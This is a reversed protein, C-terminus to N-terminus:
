TPLHYGLRSTAVVSYRAGDPSLRSEFLTVHDVRCRGAAEAREHALADKFGPGPPAKVRGLTLHARYPRDELPLGLGDLRGAVERHLAALSRAGETVGLWVVRPTGSSPFVGVGGVAVDFPEVPLPSALRESVTTALAASVDGLFHLTLHLNQWTVWSVSRRRPSELASSLRAAIGAAARKVADDIEVAVFLRM